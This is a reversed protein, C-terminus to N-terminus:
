DNKRSIYFINIIINVMTELSSNNLMLSKSFQDLLTTHLNSNFPILLTVIIIILIM